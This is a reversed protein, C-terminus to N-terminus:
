AYASTDTSREGSGCSCWASGLASLLTAPSGFVGLMAKHVEFIRKLMKLQDLNIEEDVGSSMPLPISASCGALGLCTRDAAPQQQLHFNPAEIAQQEKECTVLM